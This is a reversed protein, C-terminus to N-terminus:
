LEFAKKHFWRAKHHAEELISNYENAYDFQLDEHLKALLKKIKELQKIFISQLPKYHTHTDAYILYNKCFWLLLELEVQASGTYKSHKGILRIIKRLAKASHYDYRKLTHFEETLGTKVSEAYALPDAAQYLLYSLLEKNEKKYKYISLWIEILQDNNFSRLEKRIDSLKEAIM